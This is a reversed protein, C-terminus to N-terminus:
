GRKHWPIVWQEALHIAGFFSLGILSAVLIAEWVKVFDFGAAAQTIYVGLTDRSGGFYEGVVASIVSLTSAVRLAGFTYPLANPIRLKVLTQWPKAAYAHLLDHHLPEIETLGRMTNIMVPFYVVVAVIAAKSALNTLGFWNNMIPAFAIIPVSNAAIAFPMLAENALTWRAVLLASVFAAGSGIVFGSLAARTTTQAAAFLLSNEGALVSRQMEDFLARGIASPRPLIFQEVGLVRIGVEWTVLVALAILLTPVSHTLRARARQWSFSKSPLTTSFGDM